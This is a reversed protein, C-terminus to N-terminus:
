SHAPIEAVAASLPGSGPPILSAAILTWCYLVTPFQVFSTYALGGIVLMAISARGLYSFKNGQWLRWLVWMWAAIFGVGGILLLDVWLNDTTRGNRLSPEGILLGVVNLNGLADSTLAQRSADFLSSVGRAAAVYPLALIAGVALVRSAQKPKHSTNSVRIPMIFVIATLLIAARSFTLVTGVALLTLLLTRARAGVVGPMRCSALALTLLFAQNNPQGIIGVSRSLGLTTYGSYFGGAIVGTTQMIGVLASATGVTVVTRAILRSADVGERRLCNATVFGLLPVVTFYRILSVTEIDGARLLSLGGLGGVIFLGIFQRPYINLSGGRIIYVFLMLLLLGDRVYRTSLPVDRVYAEDSVAQIYVLALLMFALPATRRVPLALFLWCAGFVGLVVIVIRWDNSVTVGTLIATGVIGAM